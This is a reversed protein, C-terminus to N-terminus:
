VKCDVQQKKTPKTVTVTYKGLMAKKKSEIEAMQAAFHKNIVTEVVTNHLSAPLGVQVIVDLQHELTKASILTNNTKSGVEPGPASHTPDISRLYQHVATKMLGYAYLKEANEEVNLEHGLYRILAEIHSQNRNYTVDCYVAMIEWVVVDDPSFKSLVKELFGPSLFSLRWTQSEGVMVKLPTVFDLGYHDTYSKAKILLMIISMDTEVTPFSHGLCPLLVDHMETKLEQLFPTANCMLM